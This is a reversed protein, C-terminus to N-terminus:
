KDKALQSIERTECDIATTIKSIESQTFKVREILWDLTMDSAIEVEVKDEKKKKSFKVIRLQNGIGFLRGHALCDRIYTIEEILLKQSKLTRKNYKNLTRRLDDPNTLADIDVLDGSKVKALETSSKKNYTQDHKSIYIRAMTELTLLNWFLKGLNLAAQDIEEKKM